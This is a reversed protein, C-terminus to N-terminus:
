SGRAEPSSGDLSAADDMLRRVAAEGLEQGGPLFIREDLDPVPADSYCSLVRRMLNTTMVVEGLDCDPDLRAAAFVNLREILADPDPNGTKLLELHADTGHDGVFVVVDDPGILDALGIMFSNVCQAQDLFFDRRTDEPVGNILLSDGLRESSVVRQCDSDLFYPPHPAVLHGFVFSPQGDSSASAVLSELLAMSHKTNLTYPHSLHAVLQRSLIGDWLALFMLDDLWDSALCVDYADGCSSGSWGSEIMTTRYGHIALTSLLRNDGGLIRYLDSRTRNTLEGSQVPYAMELMAPVSLETSWYPSWSSVPVDFGRDTFAEILADDRYGFQQELALRGPYGDVVILYIDPQEVLDVQVGIGRDIQSQGMAQWTTMGLIFPGSGITVVLVVSAIQIVSEGELRRSLVWAGVVLGGLLVWGLGDFRWLVPGGRTFLVIAILTTFVASRRPTGLKMLVYAFLCALGGLVVILVAVREPHVLRWYNRAMIGLPWHAAAVILVLLDVPRLKSEASEPPATSAPSDPKLLKM